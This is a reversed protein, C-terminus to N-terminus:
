VLDYLDGSLWLTIEVGDGDVLAWLIEETPRYTVFAERIGAQGAGPTEAYQVLFDEPRASGGFVLMDEDTYDTIWDSGHDPIGLHFFRDSGEGGTQRDHGWGGNLFDDGEGGILLDSRASGTLTDHGSGGTIEDEGFGGIIVDAGAGGFIFDDVIGGIIQDAGATGNTVADDLSVGNVAGNRVEFAWLGQVGTNGHRDPLTSVNGFSTNQASVPDFIGALAGTDDEATGTTWEITEYRFILDFNGADQNIIQLQFRNTLDANRRYVGVDDWTVTFVGSDSDIDAWISGSETGEGDLRTDVDGWFPAILPTSLDTVAAPYGAVAQGFSVTGNTNVFLVPSAFHYGFLRMGDGFIGAVDVAFSTDDGRPVAIEGFGLPGGLGAVVRGNGQISM